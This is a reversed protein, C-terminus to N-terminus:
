LLAGVVIRGSACLSEVMQGVLTRLHEVEVAGHSDQALHEVDVLSGGLLGNGIDHRHVDSEECVPSVGLLADVVSAPM